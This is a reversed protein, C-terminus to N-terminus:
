RLLVVKGPGNTIGCDGFRGQKIPFKVGLYTAGFRGNLDNSAIGAQNQLPQLLFQRFGQVIM